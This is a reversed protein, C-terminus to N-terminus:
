SFLGDGRGFWPQLQEGYEIKQFQRAQYFNNSFQLKFIALYIILQVVMLNMSCFQISSPQGMGSAPYELLSQPGVSAPNYNNAMSSPQQNTSASKDNRQQGIYGSKPQQYSSSANQVYASQGGVRSEPNYNNAMSSPAAQSGPYEMVSAPNYNNAMSSPQKQSGPIEVVSAPNYNNVMSSPQKQSGPHEVASKYNNAMSSPNGDPSSQKQNNTQKESPTERNERVAARTAKQNSSDTEQKGSKSSSSAPNNQQAEPADPPLELMKLKQIVTAKDQLFQTDRERDPQLFDALFEVLKKKNNYLIRQVRPKKQPNAAFIKFVHFGEFQITKSSARLFNMHLKLFDDKNIYKLMIPMFARDLLMDSLLKLSQRQCVYFFDNDKQEGSAPESGGSDAQDFKEKESKSKKGEEILLRSHFEEFFEDFNDTMYAASITKHRTLLDKVCLFADSAIDFNLNERAIQFLTYLVKQDLLYKCLEPFRAFSRLIQGYNLSIESKNAYKDVIIKVINSPHKMVYDTVTVTLSTSSVKNEASGDSDKTNSREAFARPSKSNKKIASSSSSNNNPADLSNNNTAADKVGLQQGITLISNLLEVVDKRGEFELNELNTTLNFFLDNGKSKDDFNDTFSNVIIYRDKERQEASKVKERQERRSSGSSSPPSFSSGDNNKPSSRDNRSQSSPSSKDELQEILKNVCKVVNDYKKDNLATRLQDCVTEIGVSSKRGTIKSKIASFM